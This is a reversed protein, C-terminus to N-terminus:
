NIVVMQDRGNQKAIYLGQDARDIIQHVSQDSEKHEVVGGSVTFFIEGKESLLPTLRTKDCIQNAINLADDLGQKPLLVLFEEGGYRGVMGQSGVIKKLITSFHRLVDDGILHGYTDNITKFRDLDLLICSLNSLGKAVFYADFSDILFRHNHLETLSDTNATEILKKELLVQETVDILVTQIVKKKDWVISREVLEICIVDGTKTRSFHRERNNSLEGNLISQVRKTARYIDEGVFFVEISPLALIEEVTDYGLMDAYAQNVFLPKFDSHIVMGQISGEVLDRFRQESERLLHESEVQSTMDIISVQLAPEGEWEIIHDICLIHKTVGHRDLNKFLQVTSDKEGRMIATYMEQALARQDEAILSLLSDIAVLEHSTEFGYLLACKEDAYLPKFDRHIIIGYRSDMLSLPNRVM